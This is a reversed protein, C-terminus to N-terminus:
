RITLKSNLYFLVCSKKSDTEFFDAKNFFKNQLDLYLKLFCIEILIKNFIISGCQSTWILKSTSFKIQKGIM